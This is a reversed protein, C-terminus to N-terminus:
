SAKGQTAAARALTRADLGFGKIWAAVTQSAVGIRQGVEAYTLGEDLYLRRLLPQIEEQQQLEVLRMRDTVRLIKEEATTM